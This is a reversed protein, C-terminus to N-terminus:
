PKVILKREDREVSDFAGRDARLRQLVAECDAVGDCPLRLAHWALGSSGFYRASVGARSSVLRTIAATDSSPQALKVLVRLETEPAPAACAWLWALAACAPALWARRLHKSASRAWVRAPRAHSM